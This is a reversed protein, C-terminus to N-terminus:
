FEAKQDGSSGSAPTTFANNSGPEWQTVQQNGTEQRKICKWEIYTDPPLNNLTGTWTPYPGDPELKIAKKPDWSGLGPINGVVYVSIGFTTSGKDCIFRASTLPTHITDILQFNPKSPNGESWTVKYLGAQSLAPFNPGDQKGNSGWNVAWSGNATIKYQENSMLLSDHKWVNNVCDERGLMRSPDNPNWGNGAGAICIFDYQSKCQDATDLTFLFRKTLQVSLTPSRATVNKKAGDFYWGSEASAFASASTYKVLATSNLFVAGPTKDCAVRVESTRGFPADQYTGQCPYITVILSDGSRQQTIRTTRVQNNLYAVTMGDDEYLTFETQGNNDLPFIGAILDTRLTGDSRKGLANMTKDDVYMLPIIAGAAAYLPVTFIGNRYLGINAMWQGSSSTKKGSQFDYWTGAPLYVDRHQEGTKAAPAALLWKGIMKEHGMSRVNNDRQYYYVLPPM